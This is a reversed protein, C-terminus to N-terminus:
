SGLNALVIDMNLYKTEGVSTSTGELTKNYWADVDNTRMEERIMYDRYTLEDFSSFYMIHYGYESQIIGTDGVKRNSDICWNLFNPVYSSKPHIDEYLGGTEKSADDKTHKKVLEIFSEETKKGSEWEKLLKEAETKAKTKEADSYTKSGDTATSGGEFAVLLHRVNALKNLNENRKQFLVVTYGDVTKVEKGDKDKSTSEEAIVTIENELRAKDALWKQLNAPVQPYLLDTKSISTVPDKSDKNIELAGIQKNLDDLNTADKLSNIAEEAKKLAAATEEATPEKKNEGDATEPLFDDATLTYTAYTFSTFNNEKGKEYGRIAADDYKLDASYKSYFASAITSIKTYETYSELTSGYGYTAQLFKDANKYGYLQAYLNIMSLNSDMAKQEDDSLKFGETVAKAYLALDSKAKSLAEGLYYDAWTTGKEKDYDQKNLPKNGDMGMFGLMVNLNEGYQSQWTSYLNKIYDTLYYNVQVSNMDQKNVTAAITKKQFYGSRNIGNDVLVVSFVIAIVLMIAVFSITMAKLKKAEKKEQRQKETLMEAALEKRLRKKSSASMTDIGRM